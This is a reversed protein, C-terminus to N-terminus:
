IYTLTFICISVSFGENTWTGRSAQRNHTRQHTPRTTYGVYDSDRLICKFKCAVCQDNVIPSKKEKLAFVQSIRKSQLVDTIHVGINSNLNQIEQKVSNPSTM